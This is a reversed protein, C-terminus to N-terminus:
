VEDLGDELLQAEGDRGEERLTVIVQKIVEDYGARYEKIKAEDFSKLWELKATSDVLKETLEAIEEETEPIRKVMRELTVFDKNLMTMCGRIMIDPKFETTNVEIVEDMM